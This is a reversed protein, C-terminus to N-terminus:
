EKTKKTPSSATELDSRIFSTALSLVAFDDVYGFCPTTDPILDVPNLFYLLAGAAIAKSRYSRNGRIARGLEGVLAAFGKGLKEKGVKQTAERLTANPNRCDGGDKEIQEVLREFCHGSEAEPIPAFSDKSLLDFLSWYKKSIKFEPSRKLLRRITMNSVGVIKAAAEPSYHSNKLVVKLDGATRISM